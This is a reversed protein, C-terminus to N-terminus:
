VVEDLLGTYGYNEKFSSVMKDFEDNFEDGISAGNTAYQPFSYPNYGPAGAYLLSHSTISRRNDFDYPTYYETGDQTQEPFPLPDVPARPPSNYICQALITNFNECREKERDEKV